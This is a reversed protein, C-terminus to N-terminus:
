YTRSRKNTKRQRKGRRQSQRRKQRRTQRRTKMKGGRKKQERERKKRMLADITSGLIGNFEEVNLQREPGSTSLKKATLLSVDDVPEFHIGAYINRTSESRDSCDDLVGWSISPHRKIFACIGYVLLASGYGSGQNGPEIELTSISFAEVETTERASRMSSLRVSAESDYIVIHGINTGDEGVLNVILPDESEIEFRCPSVLEELQRIYEDTSPTKSCKGKSM